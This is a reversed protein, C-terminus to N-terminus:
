LPGVPPFQTSIAKKALPSTAMRLERWGSRGASTKVLASHAAKRPPARSPSNPAGSQRKGMAEGHAFIPGHASDRVEDPAVPPKHEDDRPDCAAGQLLVMTTSDRDQLGFPLQGLSPALRQARRRLRLRDAPATM